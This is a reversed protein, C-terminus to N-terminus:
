TWRCAWRPAPTAGWTSTPSSCCRRAASSPGSAPGRARQQVHLRHRRAQRLVGEAVGGLEHLHGAGGQGRRGGGRAGGLGRLRGRPRGHRGDLLRRGHEAPDGDPAARQPHRRGRGHLARRLLRHVGGRPARRGVAGAQLLRRPLRRVPHHGRAPLPARPRHAELGAQAQAAAVREVLQEATLDWYERPIDQQWYAFSPESSLPLTRTGTNTECAIGALPITELLDDQRTLTTM